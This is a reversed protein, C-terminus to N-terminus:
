SMLGLQTLFDVQDYYIRRRLIKGDATEMVEAFPLEFTRGTAPIEGGPGVLPGTHTGLFRGEVVVTGKSELCSDVEIRSDPMATKFMTAYRRFEERGRM